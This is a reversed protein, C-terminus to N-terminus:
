RTFVRAQALLISLLVGRLGPRRGARRAGTMFERGARPRSPTDGCTAGGQVTSGTYTTAGFCISYESPDVTAFDLLYSLTLPDIGSGDDEFWVKIEPTSTGLHESDAPDSDVVEPPRTDVEVGDSSVETYLGAGNYARVTTFVTQGHALILGGPVRASRTSTITL